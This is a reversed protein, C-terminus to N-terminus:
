SRLSKGNRRRWILLMGAIAGIVILVAFWLPRWLLERNRREGQAPAVAVDMQKPAAKGTTAEAAQSSHGKTPLEVPIDIPSPNSDNPGGFAFGTNMGNRRDVVLPSSTPHVEFVEDGLDVNTVPPEVAWAEVRSSVYPVKNEDFRSAEKLSKTPLWVGPSIEVFGSYAERSIVAGNMKVMASAMVYGKNPLVTGECYFGVSAPKGIRLVLTEDGEMPEGSVVDIPVNQKRFAELLDPTPVSRGQTLFDPAMGKESRWILRDEPAPVDEANRGKFSKHDFQAYREGNWVMRYDPAEKIISSARTAIRSLAEDNSQVWRDIRYKDGSIYYREVVTWEKQMAQQILGERIAAEQNSLQAQKAPSLSKARERLLAVTAEAEAQAEQQAVPNNFVRRVYVGVASRPVGAQYSSRMRSYLEDPSPPTTAGECVNLLTCLFILAPFLFSEANKM